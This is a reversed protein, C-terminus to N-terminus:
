SIIRDEVIMPTNEDGSVRCMYEVTETGKIDVNLQIFNDWPIDFMLNESSMENYRVGIIWHAKLDPYYTEFKERCLSYVTSTQLSVDEVLPVDIPQEVLEGAPSNQDPVVGNDVEVNGTLGDEVQRTECEIFDRGYEITLADNKSIETNEPISQTCVIWNDSNWISRNTGTVDIKTVNLDYPITNYYYTDFESVVKGVVNDLTFKIDGNDEMMNCDPASYIKVVTNKELKEGAEPQQYCITWSNNKRSSENIVTVDNSM